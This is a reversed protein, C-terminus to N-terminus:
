QALRDRAIALGIGMFPGGPVPYQDVFTECAFAGGAAIERWVEGIGPCGVNRIDHFAIMSAHRALLAFEARCQDAEHHSDVFALDVTGLRELLAAFADSRTNLCAFQAIPNRRAYEVMSPSPIVDVGVARALSGFRQLYEVTLVFSGGHRVGLELYSRVGLQSLRILYPAFQNPYQWLRLGGGCHPRLAAPFEDLGEDNLGLEAILAELADRERLREPPCAHLADLRALELPRARMGRLTAWGRRQAEWTDRAQPTGTSANAPTSM